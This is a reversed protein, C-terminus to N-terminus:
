KLTILNNLESLKMDPLNNQEIYATVAQLNKKFSHVIPQAPVCDSIHSYEKCINDFREKSRRCRCKAKTKVQCVSVDWCYTCKMKLWRYKNISVLLRWNYIQWVYYERSRKCLCERKITSPTSTIQKWCDNCELKYSKRKYKSVWYSVSVISIITRWVYIDWIKYKMHTM